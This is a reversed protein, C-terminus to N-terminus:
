HGIVYVWISEIICDQVACRKEEIVVRIGEKIADKLERMDAVRKAWAGGAAAAIGSYDPMDPGFGISLREGNAKSGHGDPYVGM